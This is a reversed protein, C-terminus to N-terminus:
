LSFREVTDNFCAIVSHSYYGNHQNSVIVQISGKTTEIIVESSSLEYRDDREEKGWKINTITAGVFDDRTLDEPFIAYVSIRECCTMVNDIGVVIPLGKTTNIVIGNYGEDDERDIGYMDFAADIEKANQKQKTSKIETEFEENKPDEVPYWSNRANLVFDESINTIRPLKCLDHHHRPNTSYSNM